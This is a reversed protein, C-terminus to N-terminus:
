FGGTFAGHFRRQGKENKAFQTYFTSKQTIEEEEFPTGVM